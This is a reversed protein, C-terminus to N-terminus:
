RKPPGDGRGGMSGLDDMDLQSADTLVDSGEQDDTTSPISGDLQGEVSEARLEAFTKLAEVAPAFDDYTIFATEDNEVYPDIVQVIEDVSENFAGSNVYDVLKQLYQHYQDRYVDDELLASVLPREEASVNNFVTDIAYNVADSATNISNGGFSMNYDWPLMSLQGDDEYLVYNHGMNSFYSDLNVLFVNVATYRLVEDVNIYDEIDEGVSIGKLTEILREHDKENTSTIENEFINNYSEEADDSYVLDVGGSGGNMGGGQKEGQHGGAMNDPREQPMEGSMNQPMEGNMDSPMEESMNHPMQEGDFAARGKEDDNMELSEPKYAEGTYDVGYNRELYDKDVDEVALFFGYHDGNVYIDAYTCLSAPVDMYDFLEYSLIEKMYTNDSFVNNLALEDLGYLSQGDIYKDFNLKLSYRESESKVVASLSSNGKTKVGVDEFEVGDITIDASIYPKSEANEMLYDWNEEDLTLEITIVDNGFIEDVYLPDSPNTEEEEIAREVESAQTTGGQDSVAQADSCGILGFVLTLMLISAVIRRM